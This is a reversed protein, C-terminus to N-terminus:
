RNAETKTITIEAHEGVVAQQGAHIHTTSLGERVICPGELRDGFRLDTREYEAAEAPEDTLYRLQLTRRPTLPQGERAPLMPYDVKTTPVIARVRYTVGQLPIFEFRNGAQAEYADHFNAVMEAVQDPGITGQPTSIFPTDWAQGMLQGDFSREFTAHEGDPGLRERLEDEM